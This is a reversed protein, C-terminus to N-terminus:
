AGTASMPLISFQIPVERDLPTDSFSVCVMVIDSEPITADSQNLTLQVVAICTNMNM